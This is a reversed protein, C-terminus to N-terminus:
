ARGGNHQAVVEGYLEETREAVTTWSPVTAVVRGPRDAVLITEALTEGDADPPVFRWNSGEALTAAYRHAPIESTVVAAGAASAELPTIGLAERGSMSVFVDARRLWAFLTADSVAGLFRVRDSLRREVTQRLRPLDSGEGIVVLSWDPPLADGAEIVVEVRKYPELRGAVLLVKGEATIPSAALISDSDVGNPIVTVREAAHPFSTELLLSEPVSVCVIRTAASVVLRGFPRYPRHLLRSMPTHGTGHYHPTFVFPRVRISAPALAAVSHYSHAHFVDYRRRRSQLGPWLGPAVPYARGPVVSRFRRVTVGRVEEVQNRDAACFVDVGHGRRVLEAALREVHREVGGVEPPYHPAVLAIRM